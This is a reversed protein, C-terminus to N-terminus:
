LGARGLALTAIALADAEDSVPIESLDLAGMDGIAALMAERDGLEAYAWSIYSLLTMRDGPDELEAERQRVGAILAGADEKHGAVAEAVAAAAWAHLTWVLGSEEADMELVDAVMEHAQAPKGAYAFSIALFARVDPDDWDGNLNAAFEAMRLSRAAGTPTSSAFRRSSSLCSSGSRIMESMMIGPM